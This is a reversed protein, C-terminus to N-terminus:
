IYFLYGTALRSLNNPGYYFSEIIGQIYMLHYDTHKMDTFKILIINLQYPGPEQRQSSRGATYLTIQKRHSIDSSNRM